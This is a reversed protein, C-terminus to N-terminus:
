ETRALLVATLCFAEIQIRLDSRDPLVSELRAANWRVLYYNHM